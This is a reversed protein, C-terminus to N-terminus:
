ALVLPARRDLERRLLWVTFLAQFTVTVVSLTWVSRLQFGPRQALLL